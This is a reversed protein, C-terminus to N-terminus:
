GMMLKPEATAVEAAIHQAPIARATKTFGILTAGGALPALRCTLHRGDNTDITGFWEAREGKQVIFDRVDGWLPSPASVSQWLKTADMINVQGVSNASDIGWLQAYALNSMDIVGNPSFIAIAEPCADFMSRSLDLEQRFKRTLSIEASIDDFLFAIAGEPHPRGTVRYTQGSPLSWTESYTGETALQELQALKRRWDSFDRREPAIRKERLADLVDMLTPRTTLYAPDLSTLATLAPNFMVLQRNRDFIALGIPLYAFTQTLTQTFNRLANEARITPSADIAFHMSSTEHGHSSIDFWHTTGDNMPVPSRRRQAPQGPQAIPSRGFLRPITDPDTIELKKL